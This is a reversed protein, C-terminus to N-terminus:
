LRYFYHGRIFNFYFLSIKLELSKSGILNTRKQLVFMINLLELDGGVFIFGSIMWGGFKMNLIIGDILDTFGSFM